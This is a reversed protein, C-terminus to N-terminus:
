KQSTFFEGVWFRGQYNAWWHTLFEGVSTHFNAWGFDVRFIRGGMHLFNAWVYTFNATVQAFKWFNAWKHAFSFKMRGFNHWEGMWFGNAWMLIFNAWKMPPFISIPNHSSKKLDFKRYQDYQIYFAKRNKHTHPSDSLVPKFVTRGEDDPSDLSDEYPSDDESGLDAIRRRTSGSDTISRTSGTEAEAIRKEAPRNRKDTSPPIM